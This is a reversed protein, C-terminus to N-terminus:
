DVLAFALINPGAAIAVHQRGDFTYTMPSAKWASNAPFRWLVRGSAADAASFAGGDEAFFVLGGATALTGGWSDAGGTQPLEWTIAGSRIDIARLLKQAPEQTARRTSGGYYSRGATWDGPAEKKFVSCRELSQVYYLGTGPHFATSFWNTAGEVAPCVTTGLATPEQEAALV